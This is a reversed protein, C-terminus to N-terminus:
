KYIASSKILARQGMFDSLIQGPVPNQPSAPVLRLAIAGFSTAQPKASTIDSFRVVALRFATSPNRYHTRSSIKKVYQFSLPVCRIKYDQARYNGATTRDVCTNHTLYLLSTSKRSPSKKRLSGGWM